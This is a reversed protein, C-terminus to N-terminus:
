LFNAMQYYITLKYFQTSYKLFLQFTEMQFENETLYSCITDWFDLSCKVASYLWKSDCFLQSKSKPGSETWQLLEFQQIWGSM